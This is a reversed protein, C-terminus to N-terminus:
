KELSSLEDAATRVVTIHAPQQDHRTVRVIDGPHVGALDARAVTTWRRHEACMFRSGNLDLKLVTMRGSQTRDFLTQAALAPGSGCLIVVMITLARKLM